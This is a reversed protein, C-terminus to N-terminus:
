KKKKKVFIQKKKKKRGVDDMAKHVDLKKIKLFECLGFILGIVSIGLGILLLNYGSTCACGAAGKISPVVLDAESAFAPSFGLIMVAFAALLSMPATFKKFM